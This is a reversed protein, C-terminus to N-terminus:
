RFKLPPFPTAVVIRIKNAILTFNPKMPTEIHALKKNSKPKTENAEMPIDTKNIGNENQMFSPLNIGRKFKSIEINVNNVISKAEIMTKVWLCFM